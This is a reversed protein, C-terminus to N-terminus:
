FVAMDGEPIRCTYTALTTIVTDTGGGSIEVVVDGIDDVYFTDNGTVGTMLDAGAGGNLTDNGNGGQLTDNGAGGDVDAANTSYTPYISGIFTDNGNELQIRAGSSMQPDAYIAKVGSIDFM